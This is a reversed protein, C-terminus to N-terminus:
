ASHRLSKRCRVGWTRERAELDLPRGLRQVPTVRAGTKPAWWARFKQPDQLIGLKRQVERRVAQAVGEGRKQKRLALAGRVHLLEAVRADLEGDFRRVSAEM